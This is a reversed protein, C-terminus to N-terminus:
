TVTLTVNSTACVPIHNFAISLDASTPSAPSIAIALATVNYTEPAITNYAAAYLSSLSILGNNAYIGLANIAAVLSATIQNGILSTYGTLAKITIHILITDQTPIFFNITVPVGVPDEVVETTTGYTATGPTKKQEITQAITAANGGEIVVAISPAPLGNGDTSGTDNEFIRLQEVGSINALAGFIGGIISQAPLSTSAAQRQRLQADTEVPNGPAADSANTVTQWGLTPTIIQTVIGPPATIAGAQQATATVIISGGIPVTVTTPLNWQNGNTDAVIGSTIVTGAQGVITVAVTSNTPILRVLGNIKVVSSLGTGQATAPSFANYTAIATNNEDNIAQAFIALMQGDQSDPDIYADSGYISQFSAQLSQYIDAYSPASIGTSTIQAALTPLPFTTM